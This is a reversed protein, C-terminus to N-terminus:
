PRLPNILRKKILLSYLSLVSYCIVFNIGSIMFAAALLGYFLATYEVLKMAYVTMDIGLVGAILNIGVFFGTISIAGQKLGKIDASSLEMHLSICLSFYAFIWFGYSRLNSGTFLSDMTTRVARALIVIYNYIDTHVQFRSISSNITVLIEKGSPVFLMLLYMILSALILPGSAIFLNGAM